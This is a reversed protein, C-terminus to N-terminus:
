SLVDPRYISALVYMLMLLTSVRWCYRIFTHFTLVVGETKRDEDYMYVSLLIKM